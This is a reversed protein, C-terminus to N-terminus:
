RGRYLTSPRQLPKRREGRRAFGLPTLGACRVGFNAGLIPGQLLVHAPECRREALDDLPQLAVGDELGDFLKREAHRPRRRPSAVAASRSVSKARTESRGSFTEAGTARAKVSNKKKILM